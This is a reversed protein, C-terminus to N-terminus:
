KKFYTFYVYTVDIGVAASVASALALRQNSHGVVQTSGPASANSASPAASYHRRAAAQLPARILRVSSTIATM